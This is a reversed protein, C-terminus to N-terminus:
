RVALRRGNTRMNQIDSPPFIPRFMPPYSIQNKTEAHRIWPDEQFEIVITIINSTILVQVIKENKWSPFIIKKGFIKRNETRNAYGDNNALM